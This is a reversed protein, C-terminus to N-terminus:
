DSSDDDGRTPVTALRRQRREHALLIGFAVGVLLALAFWTLAYQLHHNPFQLVTLGPRPWSGPGTAPTAQLDVFYPAVPGQLGRAAAIAAVDRGYWRDAAPDNAQLLGGGPESLRLLGPLPGADAAPPPVQGKLANPVFGRNVLLWSGDAVQLPTLVWYGSGLVTSARVLAERDPHWRGQVQVRRYEDDARSLRPWDAPAPLPGPPAALQREVRAVLAEKWALRQLQWLGLAVLGAVLLAAALGLVALLAAPRPRPATRAM